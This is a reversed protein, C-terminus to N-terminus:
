IKKNLMIEPSLYIFNYKGQCIEESVANNFTLKKSKFSTYGKEANEKVQNDGLADLPNLVYIVAKKSKSFLHPYIESINSQGCGNEAM